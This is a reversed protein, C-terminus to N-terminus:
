FFVSDKCVLRITKEVPVDYTIGDIDIFLDCGRDFHAFSFYEFVTNKVEFGNVDGYLFNNSYNYLLNSRKIMYLPVDLSVTDVKIMVDDWYIRFRKDDSTRFGFLLAMKGNIKEKVGLLIHDNNPVGCLGHQTMLNLNNVIRSSLMEGGIRPFFFECILENRYYLPGKHGIETIAQNCPFFAPECKTEGVIDCTALSRMLIDNLPAPDVIVEDCKEITTATCLTLELAAKPPRKVITALGFLQDLLEDSLLEVNKKQLDFNMNILIKQFTYYV